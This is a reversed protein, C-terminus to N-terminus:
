DASNRRPDRQQEFERVAYAAAQARERLKLKSLVRAVHQDVTRRSVFLREAIERNSLGQGLLQLVEHERKTLLRIGKPESGVDAGSIQWRLGPGFELLLGDPTMLEWNPPDDSAEHPEPIVRLSGDSLELRLEGTGEDLGVREVSRGRLQSPDSPSWEADQTALRWLGGAADRIAVHLVDPYALSADVIFGRLARLVNAPSADLTIATAM